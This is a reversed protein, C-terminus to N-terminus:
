DLRPNIKYKSTINLDKPEEKNPETQAKEDKKKFIKTFFSFKESKRQKKLCLYCSEDHNLLPINYKISEDHIDKYGGYIYSIYCFDDKIFKKLIKKLNDYEKIRNIARNTKDKRLHSKLTKENIEKNIRTQLGYMM